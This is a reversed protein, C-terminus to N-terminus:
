WRSREAQPEELAIRPAAVRRPIKPCHNERCSLDFNRSDEFFEQYNWHTLEKDPFFEERIREAMKKCAEKSQMSMLSLDLHKVRLRGPKLPESKKVLYFDIFRNNRDFQMDFAWDDPRARPARIHMAKQSIEWAQFELWPNHQRFAGSTLGWNFYGPNTLAEESLLIKKGKNKGFNPIILGPDQKAELERLESAKINKMSALRERAMKAM